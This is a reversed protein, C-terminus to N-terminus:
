FIEYFWPCIPLVTRAIDQQEFKHHKMLHYKNIAITKELKAYRVMWVFPSKHTFNFSARWFVNLVNWNLILNSWTRLLNGEDEDIADMSISSYTQVAQRNVKRGFHRRLEGHGLPLSLFDQSTFISKAPNNKHQQSFDDIFCFSSCRQFSCTPSCQKSSVGNKTAIKHNNTVPKSKRLSRLPENNLDSVSHSRQFLM